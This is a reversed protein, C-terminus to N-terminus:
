FAEYFENPRSMAYKAYVEANTAQIYPALFYESLGFTVLSLLHWGFFSLDLIFLDMKIGNTMEKSLRLAESPVLDPNEALIYPVFRYRYAAIIGPIVFLLSWLVIYLSRLFMTVVLNTLNGSKYAYLLQEISYKGERADIFFKAIGIEFMNVVFLSIIIGIIFGVIVVPLVIFLVNLASAISDMVTEVNIHSITDLKVELRNNTHSLFSNLLSLLLTALFCTWYNARLVEKARAKFEARIFM